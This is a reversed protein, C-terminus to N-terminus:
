QSAQETDGEPAAAPLASIPPPQIWYGLAQERAARRIRQEEGIRAAKEVSTVGDAFVIGDPEERHDTIGMFTARHRLVDTRFSLSLGLPHLFQRNLEQLYGLEVFEWLTLHHPGEEAARLKRVQDPTGGWKEIFTRQAARSHETLTAQDFVRAYTGNMSLEGFGHHVTIGGLVGCKFGAVRVRHGYDDDDHGYTTYSEDMPGVTDWVRRPILVCVFCVTTEIERVQGEPPAITQEPNGVGGTLVPSVIAYHMAEATGGWKEFADIFVPVLVETDDNMLLLDSEPHAKSAGRNMAKSFGFPLELPEFRVLSGWETRFAPGIGNDVVIVGPWGQAARGELWGPQSRDISALLRGLYEDTRSPIVITIM